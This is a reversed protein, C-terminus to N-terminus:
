TVSSSNRRPVHSTVPGCAVFNVDSSGSRFDGLVASGVLHLSRVLGPLAADALEERAAFPLLGRGHCAGYLATRFSNRQQARGPGGQRPRAHRQRQRPFASHRIVSHSERCAGPTPSLPPPPM